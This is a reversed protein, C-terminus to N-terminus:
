VGDGVKGSIAVKESASFNLKFWKMCKECGMEGKVYGREAVRPEHELTVTTLIVYVTRPETM